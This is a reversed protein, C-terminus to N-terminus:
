VRMTRIAKILGPARDGFLQEARDEDILLISELTVAVVLDFLQAYPDNGSVIDNIALVGNLKLQHAMRRQEPDLNGRKIAEVASNIVMYYRDAYGYTLKDLEEISIRQQKGAISSKFAQASKAREAALRKESRAQTQPGSSLCGNCSLLALLICS